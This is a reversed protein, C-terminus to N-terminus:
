RMEKFNLGCLKDYAEDEECIMAQTISKKPDNIFKDIRGCIQSEKYDFSSCEFRFGWSFSDNGDVHFPGFTKMVSRGLETKITMYWEYGLDNLVHICTNGIDDVELTDQAVYQYLYDFGKNM